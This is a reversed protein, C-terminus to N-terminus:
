SLHSGDIFYIDKKTNAICKYKLLNNCFKNHPYIKYLNKHKLSDFLNFIKENKKLYDSFEINIYDIQGNKNRLFNEIESSTNKKMKPIPYILIIQYSKSLYNKVKKAFDKLTHDSINKNYNIHLIITSEKRLNLNKIRNDQIKKNCTSKTRNEVKLFDCGANTMPIFNINKEILKNKLEEQISAMISDGILFVTKNKKKNNFSCFFTKRQFCPKFYASTTFWTKEYLSHAIIPYQKKQNPIILYLVVIALVSFVGLLNIKNTRLIVKNKSRFPQEIFRYTLYALAISFIILFLKILITKEGIGIIKSFSFIPHHWLYLSYSILGFFVIIKYSLLKNILNNKNTDQIILYAGIVPLLTMYTPHDGTNKFFSFSLLIIFFGFIGLIEKTKKKKGISLQNINLGLLGGFLLEWVRSPLMYFNFSQHNLNMTTAFFLSLFITFILILKIKKKFLILISLLFIPYLLYFQEEVSLSWTHLLPVKSLVEAGYAQGSFHFFFNSFFFISSLVSKIFEEFQIPLLYYYSFVSSIIIVVLLAPLLRKIRRKYFSKFSFSKNLQYEKLILSTILYGSIVFFLDVGLFGGPFIRSSQFVIESHYFLVGLVAVGRLGDIEKRYVQNM